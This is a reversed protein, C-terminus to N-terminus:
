QHRGRSYVFEAHIRAVMDALTTARVQDASGAKLWEALVWDGHPGGHVQYALRNFPACIVGSAHVMTSGFPTSGIKPTLHGATTGSFEADTYQWAPPKERYQDVLGRFHFVEETEPQTWAGRLELSEPHWTLPVDKRAAWALLREIEVQLVLASPDLSTM